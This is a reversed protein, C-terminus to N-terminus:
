AEPSLCARRARVQFRAFQLWLQVDHPRERTAVNFERTRRLLLEENSEGEALRRAAQEAALEAAASLPAAPHTPAAEAEAEEARLPIFSPTPMELRRGGQAAAAPEPGPPKRGLGLLRLAATAASDGGGAPLSRRRRKLRSSREMRLSPGAFYRRSRDRQTHGDAETALQRRASSPFPFPRSAEPVACRRTCAYNSRLSQM